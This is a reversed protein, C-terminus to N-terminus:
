LKAGASACRPVAMRQTLSQDDRSARAPNLLPATSDLLNKLTVDDPNRRSYFMPMASRRARAHSMDTNLFTEIPFSDFPHFLYAILLVPIRL